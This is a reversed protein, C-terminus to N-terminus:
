GKQKDRVKQPFSYGTDLCVIVDERSLGKPGWTDVYLQIKAEPIKTNVDKQGPTGNNPPGDIIKSNKFRRVLKLQNEIPVDVLDALLADREPVDMDKVEDDILGKVLDTRKQNLTDVENKYKNREVELVEKEQALKVAKEEATANADEVAKGKDILTKATEADVGLDMFSKLKTQESLLQDRVGKFKTNNEIDYGSDDALKVMIKKAEEPKKEEILKNINEIIANDIKNM